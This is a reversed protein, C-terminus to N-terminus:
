GSRMSGLLNLVAIVIMTIPVWRSRLVPGGGRLRTYIWRIVLAILLGGLATGVLYGAERSSMGDAAGLVAGARAMVVAVQAVIAIIWLVVLTGGSTTGDRTPAPQAWAVTPPTPTPDPDQSASDTTM